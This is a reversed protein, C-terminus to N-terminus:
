GGRRKFIGLLGKRAPRDADNEAPSEPEAAKPMQSAENAAIIELRRTIRALLEELLPAHDEAIEPYEHRLYSIGQQLRRPEAIIANQLATIAIELSQTRQLESGKTMYRVLLCEKLANHLLQDAALHKADAARSFERHLTIAEERKEEDVNPIRAIADLMGRAAISYGIEQLEIARLVCRQATRNVKASDDEPLTALLRKLTSEQMATDERLFHVSLLRVFAEMDAYTERGDNSIAKELILVSQDYAGVLEELKAQLMLADHYRSNLALTKTLTKRAADYNGQLFQCRAIRLYLSEDRPHEKLLWRFQKEALSYDEIKMLVHALLHRPRQMDPALAIANKLLAVAKQADRDLAAAAQDMLVQVRRGARRHQDYEGRRRADTLTRSAESFKQFTEPNDSPRFKRVLGYYAQKIEDITASEPVGLTDYLTEKDSSSGSNPISNGGSVVSVM